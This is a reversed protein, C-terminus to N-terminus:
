RNDDQGYKEMAEDAVKTMLTYRFEDPIYDLIGSLDKLM